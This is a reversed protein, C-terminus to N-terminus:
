VPARRRPRGPPRFGLPWSCVHFWGSRGCPRRAPPHVNRACHSSCECSSVAQMFESYRWNTVGGSEKKDTKEVAPPTMAADQAFVPQASGVPSALVVSALTAAMARRVQARDGGDALMVPSPGSRAPASRLKPGAISVPATFAAALPAACAAIAALAPLCRRM